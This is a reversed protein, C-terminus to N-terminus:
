PQIKLKHLVYQRLWEKLNKARLLSDKLFALDPDGEVYQSFLVDWQGPDILPKKLDPHIDLFTKAMAIAPSLVVVRVTFPLRDILADLDDFSRTAILRDIVLIMVAQLQEESLSNVDYDKLTEDLLEAAEPWVINGKEDFILLHLNSVAYRIIYNIVNKLRLVNGAAQAYMEPKEEEEREAM